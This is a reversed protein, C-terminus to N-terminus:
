KSMLFEGRVETKLRLRLKLQAQKMNGATEIRGEFPAMRIQPKYEGSSSKYQQMAKAKAQQVEEVSSTRRWKYDSDIEELMDKIDRYTTEGSNSQENPGAAPEINFLRANRKGEHIHLCRAFALMKVNHDRRDLKRRVTASLASTLQILLTSPDFWINGM